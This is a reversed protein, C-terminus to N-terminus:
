ILHHNRMLLIDKKAVAAAIAEELEERTRPNDTIEEIPGDPGYIKNPPVETDRIMAAQAEISDAAGYFESPPRIM